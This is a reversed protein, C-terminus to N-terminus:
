TFALAEFRNYNHAGPVWRLPHIEIVVALIGVIQLPDQFTSRNCHTYLVLAGLDIAIEFVALHVSPDTKPDM